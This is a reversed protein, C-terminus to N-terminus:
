SASPLATPRLESSGPRNGSLDGFIKQLQREIEEQVNREAFWEEAKTQTMREAMELTRLGGKVVTGKLGQSGFFDAIEEALTRHVDAYQGKIAKAWAIEDVGIRDAEPKVIWYLVEAALVIDNMLRSLLDTEFVEMLDVKLQSRLRMVVSTDIDVAWERGLNDKFVRM